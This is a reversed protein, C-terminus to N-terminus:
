TFTKFRFTKCTAALPSAIKHLSTCCPNIKCHGCVRSERLRPRANKLMEACTSSHNSRSRESSFRTCARNSPANKCRLFALLSFQRLFFCASLTMRNQEHLAKGGEMTKGRGEELLTRGVLCVGRIPVFVLPSNGEFLSLNRRSPSSFQAGM